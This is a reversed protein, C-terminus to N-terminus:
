PIKQRDDQRLALITEGKEWLAQNAGCIEEIQWCIRVDPILLAEIFIHIIDQCSSLIDSLSFFSSDIQLYLFM